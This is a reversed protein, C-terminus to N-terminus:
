LEADNSESISMLLDVHTYELSVYRRWDGGKSKAREYHLFVGINNSGLYLKSRENDKGVEVNDSDNDGYKENLKNLFSNYLELAEQKDYGYDQYNCEFSISYIKGSTTDGIYNVKCFDWIHGGFSVKYASLSYGSPIRDVDLVKESKKALATRIQTQTYSNGLKLGLFTDQITPLPTTLDKVVSDVFSPDIANTDSYSLAISDEGYYLLVSFGDESKYTYNPVDSSADSGIHMRKIPYNKKIKEVLEAYKRIRDSESGRYFFMVTVLSSTKSLGVNIEPTGISEDKTDFVLVHIGNDMMDDTLQYQKGANEFVCKCVDETSYSNGFELGLIIPKQAFCIATQCIIFCLFIFRKM